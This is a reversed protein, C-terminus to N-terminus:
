RREGFRKGVGECCRVGEEFGERCSGTKEATAEAKGKKKEKGM